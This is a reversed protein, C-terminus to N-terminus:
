VLHYIHWKPLFSFLVTVPLQDVVVVIIETATPLIIEGGAFATEDVIIPVVIPLHHCSTYLSLTRTQCVLGRVMETKLVRTLCYVTLVFLKCWSM